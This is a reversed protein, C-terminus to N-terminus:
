HGSPHRSISRRWRGIIRETGIRRRSLRARSASGRSLQARRRRPRRHQRMCGGAGANLQSDGGRHDDIQPM